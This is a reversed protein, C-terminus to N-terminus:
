KKIKTLWKLFLSVMYSVTAGVVALITTKLIDESLINPVVSLLTGSATGIRLSINTEM